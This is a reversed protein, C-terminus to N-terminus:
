NQYVMTPKTEVSGSEMTRPHPFYISILVNTNEVDQDNNNQCFPLHTYDIAVKDSM